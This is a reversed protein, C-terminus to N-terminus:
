EPGIKPPRPEAARRGPWDTNSSPGSQYESGNGDLSPGRGCVDDHPRRQRSFAVAPRTVPYVGDPMRLPPIRSFEQDDHPEERSCCTMTSGTRTNSRYKSRKLGYHLPRLPPPWRYESAAVSALSRSSTIQDHDRDAITQGSKSVPPPPPWNKTATPHGAANRQNQVGHQLPPAPSAWHTWTYSTKRTWDARSGSGFPQRACSRQPWPQDIADIGSGSMPKAGAPLASIRRDHDRDAITEESKSVPPPPPWNKPLKVVIKNCKRRIDVHHPLLFRLKLELGRASIGEWGRTQNQYM